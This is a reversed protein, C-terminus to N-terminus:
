ANMASIAARTIGPRRSVAPRPKREIYATPTNRAKVKDWVPMTTCQRCWRSWGRQRRLGTKFAVPATSDPM